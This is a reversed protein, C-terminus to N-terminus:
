ESPKAKLAAEAMVLIACKGSTEEQSKGDDIKDVGLLASFRKPEQNSEPLLSGDVWFSCKDRSCEAAEPKRIFKIPCIM